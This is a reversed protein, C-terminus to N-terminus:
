FMATYAEVPDTDLLVLVVAGVLLAGIVAILPLLADIIRELQVRKFLSPKM